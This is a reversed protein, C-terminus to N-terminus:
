SALSICNYFMDSFDTSKSTNLNPFGVIGILQDCDKFMGKFDIINNVGYLQVEIIEDSCGSLKEFINKKEDYGVKIKCKDKNNKVFNEGFLRIEEKKKKYTLFIKTPNQEKQSINLNIENIEKLEM